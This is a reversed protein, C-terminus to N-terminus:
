VSSKHEEYLLSQLEVFVGKSPIDTSSGQHKLIPPWPVHGRGVWLVQVHPLQAERLTSGAAVSSSERRQAQSSCHPAGLHCRGQRM